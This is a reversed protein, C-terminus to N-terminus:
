FSIVNVKKMLKGDDWDKGLQMILNKANDPIRGKFSELIQKKIDHCWRRKQEMNRAQPLYSSFLNLM